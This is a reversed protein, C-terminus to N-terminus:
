RTIKSLRKQNFVYPNPVKTAQLVKYQQNKQFLRFKSKDDRYTYYRCYNVRETFTTFAEHVLNQLSGVYTM